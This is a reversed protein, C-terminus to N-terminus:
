KLTLFVLYIAIIWDYTACFPIYWKPIEVLNSSKNHHAIDWIGHLFLGIILVWPSVWLGLIGMTVFASAVTIEVIAANRNHSLLAFGYYISGILVLLMSSFELGQQKSLLLHIFITIAGLVLGIATSQVTKKNMEVAGITDTTLTKGWIGWAGAEAQDPTVIERHYGKATV